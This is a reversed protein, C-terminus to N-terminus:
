KQIASRIKYDFELIFYFLASDYNIDVDVIKQKTKLKSM